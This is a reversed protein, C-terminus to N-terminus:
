GKERKKRKNDKRLIERGKRERNNGEVVQREGRAKRERGEKRRTAQHDAKGAKLTLDVQFM